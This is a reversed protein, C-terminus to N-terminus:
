ELRGERFTCIYDMCYDDKGAVLTAAKLM